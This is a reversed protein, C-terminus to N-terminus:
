QHGRQYRRPKQNVSDVILVPLPVRQPELKLGLQKDVADFITIGEAGALSLLGKLTWKLDFDWAGKIGTSDLVPSPLYSPALQRLAAAFAAMTMNRCSFVQPPITDPSPQAPPQLQCGPEGSSDAEKLKPKGKGVTLVFGPMPKMDKHVVLKFRDTLLEQLMLNATEASTAPPAKATVDFRDSELWSPGGVVADPDVGYATKILDLMTAQRLEYRGARLVGGQMNPNRAPASVHVDAIQFAPKIPTSQGFAGSLLAVFSIHACARMM